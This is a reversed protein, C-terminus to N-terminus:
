AIDNVSLFTPIILEPLAFPLNTHFLFLSIMAVSAAVLTTRYFLTNKSIQYFECSFVQALTKKKLLTAPRLGAFKNFFLSQCLHKGTFKILNRLVGKKCFVQPRSNRNSCCKSKEFSEDFQELGSLGSLSSNNLLFLFIFILLLGGSTSKHFPTRFIHLMNVSSCGLQLTM